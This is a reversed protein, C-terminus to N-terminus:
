RFSDFLSALLTCVPPPAPPAARLFDREFCETVVLVRAGKSVHDQRIASVDVVRQDFLAPAPPM